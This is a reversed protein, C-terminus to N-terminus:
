ISIKENRLAFNSRPIAHIKGTTKLRSVARSCRARYSEKTLPFSKIGQYDTQDSRIQCIWSVFQDIWGSAPVASALHKLIDTQFVM